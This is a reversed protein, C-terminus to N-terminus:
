ERVGLNLPESNTVDAHMIPSTQAWDSTSPKACGSSGLIVTFGVLAMVVTAVRLARRQPDVVTDSSRCSIHRHM